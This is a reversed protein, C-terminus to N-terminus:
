GIRRIGTLADNALGFARPTKYDGKSRVSVPGKFKGDRFLQWKGRIVKISLAKLRLRSELIM